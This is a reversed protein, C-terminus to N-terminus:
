VTIKEQAERHLRVDLVFTGFPVLSALFAFAVKIFSWKRDLAVQLLAYIYLIFLFGHAWGVVKVVMPLGMYYKMPMAIGLLVLFSIGELLAIM